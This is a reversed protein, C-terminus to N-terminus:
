ERFTSCPYSTVRVFDASNRAATSAPDGLHQFHFLVFSQHAGASPFRDSDGRATTHTGPQYSLQKGIDHTLEIVKASDMSPPTPGFMAGESPLVTPPLLQFTIDDEVIYKHNNAKMCVIDQKKFGGTQIGVEQGHCSVFADHEPNISVNGGATNKVRLHLVRILMPLSESVANGAQLNVDIREILFKTKAFVPKCTLNDLASTQKIQNTQGPAFVRGHGLTIFTRQSSDTASVNGYSVVNGVGLGGPVTATSPAPAAM